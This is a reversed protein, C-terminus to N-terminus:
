VREQIFKYFSEGLKTLEHARFAKTGTYRNDSGDKTIHILGLSKLENLFFDFIEITISSVLHERKTVINKVMEKAERVELKLSLDKNSSENRIPAKITSGGSNPDPYLKKNIRSIKANATLLKPEEEFFHFLIIIQNDTLKDVLDLYKEALDFDLPNIIQNLAINRFRDLKKQSKTKSVKVLVDEFFFHYNQSNLTKTDFKPNISKLYNSFDIIFKEAKKAKFSSSIRFIESVFAGGEQLM